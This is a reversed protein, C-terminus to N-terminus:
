LPFLSSRFPPLRLVHLSQPVEEMRRRQPRRTRCRSRTPVTFKPSCLHNRASPELSRTGFIILPSSSSSINRKGHSGRSSTSTTGHRPWSSKPNVGETRGRAVVCCRRSTTRTATSVVVLVLERHIVPTWVVGCNGYSRSSCPITAKWKFGSRPPPLPVGLVAKFLLFLIGLLCPPLDLHLNSVEKHRTSTTLVPVVVVVEEEEEARRVPLKCRPPKTHSKRRKMYWVFAAHIAKSVNTSRPFRSVYM